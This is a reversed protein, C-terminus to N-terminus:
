DRRETIRGYQQIVSMSRKNHSEGTACDKESYSEKTSRVGIGGCWRIAVTPLRHICRTYSDM